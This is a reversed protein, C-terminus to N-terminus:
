HMSKVNMRDNLTTFHLLVENHILRIEEWFVLFGIGESEEDDM